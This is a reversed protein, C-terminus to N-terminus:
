ARGDQLQDLEEKLRTKLDAFYVDWDLIEAITSYEERSKIAMIENLLDRVRARYENVWARLRELKSLSEVMSGFATGNKLRDMIERVKAQDNHDYADKLAMFWKAAEAQHEAEVMDPHCLKSAQRFLQKLDEKEETTLTHVVEDKDQEYGEEYEARDAEAQAREEDTEAREVRLKLLQIILPGLEQTHRLHFQHLMRELETKENDLASLQVELARAEMRLGEIEPDVYAALQSRSQIYREIGTLAAAFEKAHLAKIIASLEADAGAKPLKALQLPLDEVEDLAVLQKILVLRKLVKGIDLEQSAAGEEAFYQTKLRRFETGFQDALEYAERSVTINEHNQRAKYSWNYSGNIVTTRDIVCFKNHMMAGGDVPKIKYLKGGAATLRQLDNAAANNIEDDLVMLEVSVGRGCKECLKNLLPANTFWAVAVLISVKAQDLEKILQAEIQEFYAQTTM